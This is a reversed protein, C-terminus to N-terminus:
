TLDEDYVALPDVIECIGLWSLYSVVVSSNERLTFLQIAIRNLPCEPARLAVPDYCM